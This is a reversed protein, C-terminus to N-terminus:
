EVLATAATGFIGAFLGSISDRVRLIFTYVPNAELAEQRNHILPVYTLYGENVDNHCHGCTGLLRAEAVSSRRDSSSLIEHSGHCDWCSPADEAGRKYAAGHYYDNYSEWENKHCVGCVERGRAHLESKGAPNDTLMKIDHSGHCDGCLPKAELNAPPQQGPVQSISHAGLSYSNYQEVHCNRCSLKVTERWDAGAETHPARFSFDTHCGTCMIGAHASEQLVGEDIWYSLAQTGRLRVLNRDGHCVMCGSKGYTPLSFSLDYDQGQAIGPTLVATMLAAAAVLYGLRVRQM